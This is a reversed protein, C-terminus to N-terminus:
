NVNWNADKLMKKAKAVSFGRNKETEGTLDRPNSGAEAYIQNAGSILSIIEPEHVGMARNPKVCLVSVACILAMEPATIEGFESMPSNEFCIRRMVAMVNVNYDKARFIEEVIEESTHEPGIPEVCYYLELEANKIANLTNIRDDVKAETVVGEGLRCIHYVGTIGADALKKAYDDSFDGVNAVLRITKPISKKIESVVKVFLDRDYEATSMLFIENAGENVADIAKIKIDSIDMTKSNEENFNDVALQCFKCNVTCPTSDVGIQAFIVGKNDFTKRAYRNAYNIITYFDDSFIETELMKKADERTIDINKQIKEYINKM